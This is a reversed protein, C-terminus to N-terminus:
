APPPLESPPTQERRSWGVFWVAATWTPFLDVGPLLEAVFTPVFAIHWGLMRVLIFGVVLDLADNIPALFGPGFLPVLGLQTLDALAAILLPRWAGGQWKFASAAFRM